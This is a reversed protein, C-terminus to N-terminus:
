VGDCPEDNFVQRGSSWDWVKVRRDAGASALHKGDRHFAVSCAFGTHAKELTQIVRARRSDWVKVAGDGCAAALREGDPSFALSNAQANDRLIVPEVRCLRKLYHWEWQRLDNPCDDLLKVAGDLNDVSLERQALTIRHSIADRRERELAQELDDRAR